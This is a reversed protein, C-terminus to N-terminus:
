VELSRVSQSHTLFAQAWLTRINLAASDRDSKVKGRRRDAFTKLNGLVDSFSRRASTRLFDQRNADRECSKRKGERGPVIALM